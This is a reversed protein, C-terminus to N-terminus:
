EFGPILQGEGLTFELPEKGESSDFVEGNKLTGTYNVKVTDGEKVKSM